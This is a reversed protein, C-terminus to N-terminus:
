TKQEELFSSLFEIITILLNLIWTEQSELKLLYTYSQDSYKTCDTMFLILFETRTKTLQEQLNWSLKSWLHNFTEIWWSSHQSDTSALPLNEWQTTPDLFLDQFCCVSTYQNSEKTPATFTIRSWHPRLGLPIIPAFRYPHVM